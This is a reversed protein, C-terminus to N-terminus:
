RCRFSEDGRLGVVRIRNTRTRLPLSSYVGCFYANENDMFLIM